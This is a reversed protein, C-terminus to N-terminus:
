VLRKRTFAIGSGSKLYKEFEFAQYKNKFAIYSVLEVPLHGATAPVWGKTHRIYRQRLNATCGKYFNGDVCKLIYVYYM